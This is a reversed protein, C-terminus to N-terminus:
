YGGIFKRSRAIVEKTHVAWRQANDLDAHTRLLIGIFVAQVVLPLAILLLGKNVITFQSKMKSIFKQVSM